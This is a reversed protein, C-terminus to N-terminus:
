KTPRDLGGIVNLLTSKGSGSPGMIATVQGAQIGFSVSDLAVNQRDGSYVKSVNTLEVLQGM